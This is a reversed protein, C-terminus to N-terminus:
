LDIRLLPLMRGTSPSRSDGIRGAGLAEYFAVAYPDSQITMWRCGLARAEECAHAFLLRGYGKGHSTPEVFLLDLDSAPPEVTVGYFGGITGGDDLVFVSHDTIYDRSVRLEDAARAMFDEDYGHSAKSRLALDTLAGVEGPEAPRISVRSLDM